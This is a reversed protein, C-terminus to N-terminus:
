PLSPPCGLLECLSVCVETAVKIPLQGGIAGVLVDEEGGQADRCGEGHQRQTGLVGRQFLDLPAETEPIHWLSVKMLAKMVEDVPHVLPALVEFQVKFVGQENVLLQLWLLLKQCLDLVQVICVSDGGVELVQSVSPLLDIIIDTLFGLPFDIVQDLIYSRASHHKKCITNEKSTLSPPM